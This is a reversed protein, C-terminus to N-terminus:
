QSLLERFQTNDTTPHRNNKYYQKKYATLETQILARRGLVLIRFSGLLENYVKKDNASVKGNTQKLQKLYIHLSDLKLLDDQQITGIDKEIAKCLKSQLEPDASLRPPPTYFPRPGALM